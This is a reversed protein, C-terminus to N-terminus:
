ELAIVEAAGPVSCASQAVLGAQETTASPKVEM